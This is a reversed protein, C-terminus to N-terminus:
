GAKFLVVAYSKYVVHIFHHSEHTVFSGFHRGVICHWHAGFESDFSQKITEAVQRESKVDSSSLSSSSAAAAQSEASDVLVLDSADLTDKITDVAKRKMDDSMDVAKVKM